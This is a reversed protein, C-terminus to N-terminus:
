KQSTLHWGKCTPCWYDRAAKERGFLQRATRLAKKAEKQDRYRRKGYCRGYVRKKRRRSM